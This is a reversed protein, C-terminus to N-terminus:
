REPSATGSSQGETHNKNRKEGYIWGKGPERCSKNWDLEVYMQQGPFPNPPEYFYHEPHTRTTISYPSIIVKSLKCALAWYNQQCEDRHTCVVSQPNQSGSTGAINQDVKYEYLPKSEFTGQLDGQEM